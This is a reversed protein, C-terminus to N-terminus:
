EQLAREAARVEDALDSASETFYPVGHRGLVQVFGAKDIGLLEAGKGSSIRGERFLELAILEKVRQRVQGKPVELAGLVDGPLDVEITLANM